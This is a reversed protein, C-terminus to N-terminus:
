LKAGWGQAQMHREGADRITEFIQCADKVQQEQDLSIIWEQRPASAKRIDAARDGVSPDNGSLIRGNELSTTTVKQSRFRRVTDYAQLIWPVIHQATPSQGVRWSSRGRSSNQNTTALYKGFLQELILADEISQGAGAGQFPTCGHAADGM